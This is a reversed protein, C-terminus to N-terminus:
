LIECPGAMWRQPTKLRGRGRVGGLGVILALSPTLVREAEGFGGFQSDSLDVQDRVERSRKYAHLPNRGRADRNPCVLM